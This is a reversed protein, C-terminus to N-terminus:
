VFYSVIHACPATGTLLVARWCQTNLFCVPAIVSFFNYSVMEKYMGSCTRSVVGRVSIQHGKQWSETIKEVSFDNKQLFHLIRSHLWACPFSIKVTGGSFLFYFSSLYIATLHSTFHFTGGSPCLSCRMRSLVVSSDGDLLSWKRFSSCWTVCVLALSDRHVSILQRPAFFLM